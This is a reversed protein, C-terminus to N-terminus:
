GLRDDPRQALDVNPDTEGIVEGGGGGPPDTPPDTPPDPRVIRTREFAFNDRRNADRGNEGDDSIAAIGFVFRHRFVERHSLEVLSTAPDDAVDDVTVGIRVTGTEGAALDGIELKCRRGECTWQHAADTSVDVVSAPGGLYFTLVVGTSDVSGNNAYDFIYAFTEGPAVEDESDDLTIALFYTFWFDGPVMGLAHRYCAEACDFLLHADCAM